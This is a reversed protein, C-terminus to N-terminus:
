SEKWPIHLFNAKLKSKRKIKEITKISQDFPLKKIIFNIADNGLSVSTDEPWSFLSLSDTISGVHEIFTSAVDQQKLLLKNKELLM